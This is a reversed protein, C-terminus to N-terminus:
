EDTLMAMLEKNIALLRSNKKRLSDVESLVTRNKTSGKPRGKKKGQIRLVPPVKKEQRVWGQLTPVSVKYAPAVETAPKGGLVESIAQRREAETIKAKAM